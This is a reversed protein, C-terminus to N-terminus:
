SPRGSLPVAGCRTSCPSDKENVKRIVADTFQEWGKVLVVKQHPTELSFGASHASNRAEQPM